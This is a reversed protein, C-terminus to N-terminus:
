DLNKRPLCPSESCSPLRWHNCGEWSSSHPCSKSPSPQPAPCAHWTVKKSNKKLEIQFSWAAGLVLWQTPNPIRLRVPAALFSMENVVTGSKIRSPTSPLLTLSWVSVCVASMKRKWTKGKLAFMPAEWQRQSRFCARGRQKTVSEKWTVASQAFM